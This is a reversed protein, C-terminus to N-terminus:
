EKNEDISANQEVADEAKVPPVYRNGNGDGHPNAYVTKNYEFYEDSLQDKPVFIMIKKGALKARVIYQGIWIVGFAVMLLATFQSVGFGDGYGGFLQLKQAPDRFYELVFREIGYWICYLSIYLGNFSKRKSLYMIFLPIFGILCWLSEIFPNGLHLVGHVKYSFPFFDFDVAIGYCCEGFYCGIRGIAQGLPVFVAALDLMQMMKVSPKKTFKAYIIKALLLGVVAGFLAGIVAIGGFNFNNSFGFYLVGGGFAVPVAIIVYDFVLDNYYGQKVCSYQGLIVCLVIAMGILLGYWNMNEGLTLAFILILIAFIVLAVGLVLLFKKDYSLAGIRQWLGLSNKNNSNNNSDM